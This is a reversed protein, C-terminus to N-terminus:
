VTAVQVQYYVNDALKRVKVSRTVALLLPPPPPPAEHNEIDAPNKNEVDRNTCRDVAYYLQFECLFM